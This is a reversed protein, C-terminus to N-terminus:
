APKDGSRSCLRPGSFDPDSVRWHPCSARAGRYPADPSPAGVGAVKGFPQLAPVTLCKPGFGALPSLQHPHGQLPAGPSPAGVGAERGFPQLAPASLCKHGFGALPSLQCPPPQAKTPPEHERMKRGSQQDNGSGDSSSKPGGGLADAVQPQRRSPIGRGREASLRGSWAGSIRRTEQPGLAEASQQPSARASKPYGGYVVRGRARRPLGGLGRAQASQPTVGGSWAGAGEASLRGSWASRARRTVGRLGRM